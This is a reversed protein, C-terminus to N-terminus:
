YRTDELLFKYALDVPVNTFKAIITKIEPPMKQESETKDKGVRDVVYKVLAEKDLSAVLETLEKTLGEIADPMKELDIHILDDGENFYIAGFEKLYLYEILAAAGHAKHVGFRITMPLRGVFTVYSKNLDDKTLIDEGVLYRVNHLATADARAEEVRYWKSGDHYKWAEKEETGGGEKPVKLLVPGLGHTIEHHVINNIYANLDIYKLVDPALALKSTPILMHDFKAKIINLLQVKKSGYTKRVFSDNPLNFAIAKVGHNADGASQVLNVFPFYSTQKLISYNERFAEEIPLNPEFDNMFPEFRKFEDTKKDDRICIYSEFTAKIASIEDEYQEYPGITPQIKGDTLLWLRESERYDDLNNTKFAKVKAKLFAALKTDKTYSAAQTLISSLPKLLGKYEESYPNTYLKGTPDRRIATNANKFAKVEEPTLVELTAKWEETTFNPPYLNIGAPKPGIGDIFPEWHNMGDWPQLNYNLLWLLLNSSRDTKESIQRLLIARLTTTQPYIQQEYIGQVLARTRLLEMLTNFDPKSLTSVDYDLDVTVVKNRAARLEELSYASKITVPLPATKAIAEHQFEKILFCLAILIGIILITKTFKYFGM